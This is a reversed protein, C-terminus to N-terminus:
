IIFVRYSDTKRGMDTYEYSEYTKSLEIVVAKVISSLIRHVGDKASLNVIMKIM